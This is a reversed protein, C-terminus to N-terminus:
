EGKKDAKKATAKKKEAPKKEEAKKVDEELEKEAEELDPLNGFLEEDTAKRIEKISPHDPRFQTGDCYLYKKDQKVVLLETGDKLVIIKAM